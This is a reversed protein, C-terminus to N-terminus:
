APAAHSALVKLTAAKGERVALHIARDGNPLAADHRGGVELIRRLVEAHGRAAVKHVLNMKGPNKAMANMVAAPHDLLIANLRHLDGSQAAQGLQFDVSVGSAAAPQAEM